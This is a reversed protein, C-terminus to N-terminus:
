ETIYNILFFSYFIVYCFSNFIHKRIFVRWHKTQTKLCIQFILKNCYNLIYIFCLLVIYGSRFKDSVKFLTTLASLCM